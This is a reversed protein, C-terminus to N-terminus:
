VMSINCTQQLILNNEYRDYRLRLKMKDKDHEYM